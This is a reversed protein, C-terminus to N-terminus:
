SSAVISLRMFVLRLALRRLETGQGMASPSVCWDYQFEVRILSTATELKTVLTSMTLAGDIHSGFVVEGAPRGQIRVRVRGLPTGRPMYQLGSVELRIPGPQLTEILPIDVLSRPANSWVGTEEPSSWGEVLCQAAPAREVFHLTDGLNFAAKHLLSDFPSEKRVCFDPTWHSYHLTAVDPRNSLCAVMLCPKLYGINILDFDLRGIMDIYDRDVPDAPDFNDGFHRGFLAFGINGGAFFYEFKFRNILEPLIDQARIGENNERSNDWNGYIKEFRNLCRNHKYKDPLIAWIKDVVALAEPWLMHGNRGITDNTLFIGSIGIIESIKDFLTELDTFHHLCQNAIVVEAYGNLILENKGINFVFNRSLGHREANERARAIAGEAIDVCEFRVNNYGASVLRKCIAIEELCEGAGICLIRASQLPNSALLDAIRAFQFDTSSSTRFVSELYPKYYHEGWYDGSKPNAGHQNELASFSVSQAHLAYDDM